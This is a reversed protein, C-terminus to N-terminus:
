EHKNAVVFRRNMIMQKILLYFLGLTLVIVGVVIFSSPFINLWRDEWPFAINMGFFGVLVGTITIQQLLRIERQANEELLSEFLTMTSNGYDATMQWLNDMYQSSKELALFNNLGLASLKQKLAEPVVANRISLINNMQRLRARIFSVTKLIDLIKNRISTFDSYRLGNNERISSIEAWVSRHLKLYRELLDSFSRMFITYTFLIDLFESGNQQTAVNSIDVLESEQGYFIVFKNLSAEALFEDGHSKLYAKADKQAISKGVLIKPYVEKINLLTQPLPAGRSFLYALGPGLQNTYFSEIKKIDANIDSIHSLMILIIGDETITVTINKNSSFRVSDFDQNNNFVLNKINLQKKLHKLKNQDLDIGSGSKFFHYIEKLHISTRPLWTGLYIRDINM